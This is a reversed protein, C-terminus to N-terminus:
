SYCCSTIVSVVQLTESFLLNFHLYRKIFLKGAIYFYITNGKATIASKIKLQSTTKSM